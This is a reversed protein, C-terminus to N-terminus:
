TAFNSNGQGQVYCVTRAADAVRRANPILDRELNANYPMPVDDMGVRLVPADLDDFAQEMIQASIEAGFGHTKWGETVVVCRNTKRVSDLITPMDLPRLTRPDIVEAEIGQRALEKAAALAVDVMAMTAVITVHSGERRIKAKGIPLRYRQEPVPGNSMQYLLKHEIFVVPNNDEIAAALLGKADYPNSPGIVVLGPVHAFWSELSQSHQAGLRIGGGQPGRIVLPIAIEGGLMFRLKAAQNVIADMMHTIFDFFQVEVIPRMGTMAAGVAANALVNESIPTDRVRSAGHAEQLGKTAAFLGGIRGVDEGMVLVSPDRALEQDMAERVAEVYGLMRSGPDPEGMDPLLPATVSPFLIASTPEAAAEAISVCADIELAVGAKIEDLRMANVQREALVEGLQRIPDKQNLWLDEEEVPRYRPLNTRMSHDGWRYTMAEILSPGAGARARTVARSTAELVSLVDNGDITEGPIGYSAARRSIEPVASAEAVGLSLGYRNNECLFIVPLKWLAALNLAEHFIGENAAGDGFFAVTVQKSGRIDSSLAAGTGIGLGAGVIGNAGLIGHKMSAIHMSGGMGHGYGTDKGFLEAMMSGLDAGKAICHGHGRHNSVIYDDAALAACAGVAVAEQGICSHATGKIIGKKFLETAREEFLRIRWLEKYFRELVETDPGPAVEGAPKTSRSRPVANKM